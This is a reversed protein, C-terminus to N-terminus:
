PDRRNGHGDQNEDEDCQSQNVDKVFLALLLSFVGNVGSNLGGSLLMNASENAVVLSAKDLWMIKVLNHLM